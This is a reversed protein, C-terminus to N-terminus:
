TLYRGEAVMIRFETEARERLVPHGLRRELALKFNWFAADWAAKQAPTHALEAARQAALSAMIDITM